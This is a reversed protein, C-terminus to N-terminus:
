KGELQAVRAELEKIAEILVGVLNGYAVSLTDDAGIGQQVVEPMVELMEQAIVGVGAKGTDIRTYKVGRMKGVLDLANDITEVDKKMRIDSYATVNGLMTLNGSGDMQFCNSSASWGGIRFVNDTGLGMNIAYAGARHFSMSAITTTSGRVSISGTDNASNVDTSASNRGVILSNASFSVAGTSEVRFRESNSTQFIVNAADQAGIYFAGTGRHDIQSTTNAGGNGRIMRLGYDTYTTDGILDVYAYNNGTRGAGLEIKNDNNQGAGFFMSNRAYINAATDIYFANYGGTEDWINFSTGISPGIIWQRSANSLRLWMDSAYMCVARGGISTGTLFEGSTNFRGRESGGTYFQHESANVRHTVYTNAAANSYEINVLGATGLYWRVRTTESIDLRSAPAAIGIGVNGSGDIRMRETASSGTAFAMFNAENVTIRGAEVGNITYFDYAQQGTPAIRQFAAYNATSRSIIINQISSSVDLKSGPSSTGIGVQGSSDIRMRETPAADGSRVLFRLNAGIYNADDPFFGISGINKVTGVTDTGQFLASSSKTTNNGTNSNRILVPTAGASNDERALVNGVVDLRVTPASTGVGVNSNFDVRMAEGGAILFRHVNAQYSMTRWAVGASLASISGGTSSNYGIAVAGANATTGGFLAYTNDWAGPAGSSTADGMSVSLKGVFSTTGIGVEGTSQIRMRESGGTYFEHSTPRMNYLLQATGSGTSQYFRFSTSGVSYLNYLDTEGDGGTFNWQAKFGVPGVNPHTQRNEGGAILGGNVDLNTGPASTGIGVAGTSTIRMREASNTGFALPSNSVTGLHALNTTWGGATSGSVGVSLTIANDNIFQTVNYGSAGSGNVLIGNGGTVTLRGGGTSSAGIAVNGDSGIRMRESAGVGFATFNAANTDGNNIAFGGGILKALDVTADGSNAINRVIQRWVIGGGNTQNRFDFYSYAAQNQVVEFRASPTATGIGVSGGLPQLILNYVATTPNTFSSQIWQAFSQAGPYQGVTLYNGGNGSMVTHATSLIDTSSPAAAAVNAGLRTQGVNEFQSGPAGTGVGVFGASTIRMSETWSVSNTRREFVLPTSGSGLDPSSIRHGYGSAFNVSRFEVGGTQALSSMQSAILLSGGYTPNSAAASGSGIAFLAQPTTTGIGANTGNDYVVSASTPSVGNGKLLFGSTLTSNGTGGRSVALQGTWGLTMSTAALLATSPSGGLTMTVNTDDFETLAAGTIDGSPITASATFASTGNGKLYGTLTTAGSGGNAVPLTGSVHTTLGIKGWLPANSVGGSILANGTAVDALSSLTTTGSAYLIDGVTYSSLGTGGNGAGLTGSVQTTLSITGSLASTPITATATFASTGNGVLYGTLSTAGTGGNGVALTGSIHTTLGIKGYSPATGVGGSILANGTAIDALKGIATSSTAYLLDGAAFSSLGTGGSTAPLTGTTLASTSTAYVAGGSTFATLGTGGNVTTVPAILSFVTGGTLQLGNGATYLTADSVQVFNIATVGFTITGTTNMLYTEGAGTDGSTVFFSDGDGLSNPSKLGYTDADTARTLVWAVSGSGVTTVTYIGNQFASTQNYVL